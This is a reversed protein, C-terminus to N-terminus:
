LWGLKSKRIYEIGREIKHKGDSLSSGAQMCDEKIQYIIRMLDERSLEKIKKISSVSISHNYNMAFHGKNPSNILQFLCEGVRSTVFHNKEKKVMGLHTEGQKDEVQWPVWEEDPLSNIRKKLDRLRM